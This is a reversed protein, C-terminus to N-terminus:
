ATLINITKKRLSYILLHNLIYVVIFVMKLYYKIIIYYYNYIAFYIIHLFLIRPSKFKRKSTYGLSNGLLAFNTARTRRVVRRGVYLDM